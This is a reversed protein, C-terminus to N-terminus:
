LRVSDNTKANSYEADGSHERIRNDLVPTNISAAIHTSEDLTLPCAPAASHVDSDPGQRGRLSDHQLIEM